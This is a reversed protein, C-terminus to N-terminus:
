GRPTEYRRSTFVARGATREAVTTTSSGIILLTRMDVVDPDFAAVTTVVVNEEPGGVDRGLVIPRDAPLRQTLIEKLASVQWRRSESGPNYIAIVMDADVASHLRREIVDWSKLRDSLSIVAYDHGLPAGVAAAVANAATMGPVVRVPVDSWAPEAAVEIVAAAM